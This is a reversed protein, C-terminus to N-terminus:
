VFRVGLFNTLEGCVQIKLVIPFVVRMLEVMDDGAEEKAANVKAENEPLHVRELMLQLAETVGCNVM